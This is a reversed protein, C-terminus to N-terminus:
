LFTIIYKIYKKPPTAGRTGESSPDTTASNAVLHSYTVTPYHYM